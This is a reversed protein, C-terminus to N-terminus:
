SFNVKTSAIVLPSPADKPKKKARSKNAPTLSFNSSALTGFAKCPTGIANTAAPNIDM